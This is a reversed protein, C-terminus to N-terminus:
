YHMQYFESGFTISIKQAMTSTYDYSIVSARLFYANKYEHRYIPNDQDDFVDIYISSFRNLFPPFHYGADDVIRRQCWNVFKGITGKQDEEMMLALEFGQFDFSPFSSWGSNERKFEWTPSSINVIHHPEIKPLELTRANMANLHKVQRDTLGVIADALTDNVIRVLFKDTKQITKHKFYNSYLNSDPM